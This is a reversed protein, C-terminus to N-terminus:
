WSSSAPSAAPRRRQHSEAARSLPLRTVEPNLRGDALLKMLETLDERMATPNKNVSGEVQYVALRPGPTVRARLLALVARALGGARSHGGDVTFSFGYSVVVGSRATLRRSRALSPGGVPDFVADAPPQVKTLDDVVTVGRTTLVGRRAPSATGLVQVGALAALETLASGVGGAAGLVLVRQGPQVAATRHLMQYATLYNLTLAAAQAVDVGPPVLVTRDARGVVHTAYGGTGVLSAVRQGVPLGSVGPGCEVVRGVVDFGLVAPLKGPNRGQRTTVDNFAVGAAEVAILVEGTEPRHIEVDGFELTEPGGPRRLLVAQAHVVTRDTM